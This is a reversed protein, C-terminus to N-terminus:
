GGPTPPQNLLEVLVDGHCPRPKCYCGLVKGRLSPLDALLKPQTRLWQRYKDIIEEQTGEWVVQYPNGWKSTKGIYVYSGAERARSILDRDININAVLVTNPNAQLMEQFEDFTVTM